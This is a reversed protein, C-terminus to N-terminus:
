SFMNHRRRLTKILEFDTSYEVFFLLLRFCFGKVRNGSQVLLKIKLQAARGNNKNKCWRTMM